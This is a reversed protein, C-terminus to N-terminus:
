FIITYWIYLFSCSASLQMKHVIVDNRHNWAIERYYLQKHNPSWLSGYFSPTQWRLYKTNWVSDNLIHYWLINPWCYLDEHEQVYNLIYIIIPSWHYLINIPKEQKSTPIKDTYGQQKLILVTFFISCLFYLQLM